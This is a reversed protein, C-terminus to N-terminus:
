RPDPKAFALVIWGLIAAAGGVPAMMELATNNLFAHLYIEAAFLSAGALILGGAILNLAGSRGAIVLGALAASLQVIAALLVWERADEVSALHHSAALAMLACAGSLGAVINILRTM